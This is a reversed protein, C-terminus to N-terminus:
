AEDEAMSGRMEDMGAVLENSTRLFQKLQSPFLYVIATVWDSLSNISFVSYVVVSGVAAALWVRNGREFAEEKADVAEPRASEEEDRRKRWARARRAAERAAAADLEEECSGGADVRGGPVGEARTGGGASSADADASGAREGEYGDDGEAGLAGGGDGPAASAGFRRRGASDLRAPASAAGGARLVRGSVATREARRGFRRPARQTAPVFDPRAAQALLLLNQPAGLGLPGGAVGTRGSRRAAARQASTGLPPFLSERVRAYWALLGPMKREVLLEMIGLRPENVAVAVAGFVVADLSSPRAGFFWLGAGAAPTPGRPNEPDLTGDATPGDATPLASGGALRTELARFAGELREDVEETSLADLGRERLAERAADQMRRPETWGLPWPLVAVVEPRTKEAFVAADLWRRHRVLPEITHRVLDTFAACEAKQLETLGDDIGSIEAVHRAIRERRGFLRNGHRLLPLPGAAASSPHAVNRESFPLDSLRLLAQLGWEYRFQTLVLDDNAPPHDAPRVEDAGDADESRADAGASARDATSGKRPSSAAVSQLQAIRRRRLLYWLGTGVAIACGLRLQRATSDAM